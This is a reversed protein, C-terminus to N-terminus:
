GHVERLPVRRSIVMLESPKEEAAHKDIPLANKLREYLSAM